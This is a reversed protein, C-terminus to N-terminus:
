CKKKVQRLTLFFVRNRWIIMKYDPAISTKQRSEALNYNISKEGASSIQQNKFLINGFNYFPAPQGNNM